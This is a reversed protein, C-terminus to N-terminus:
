AQICGTSPNTIGMVLKLKDNQTQNALRDRRALWLAASM